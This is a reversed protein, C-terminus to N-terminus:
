SNINDSGESQEPHCQTYSPAAPLHKKLYLFMGVMVAGSVALVAYTPGEGLWEITTTNFEEKTMTAMQICAISNNLFHGIIGPVLSGTRYYLWGFILGIAFAFPIQIPNMHIIGFIASAIFLAAWPNMGKRLLHGQIAGRFLFEEVLPAMITISIIGFVNRSMAFFTDQMLDPLGLFESCLNLFLMGSIILPISLGIIKWSIETFSKLNFKVYKFHILHWIMAIGSLVMSLGIMNTSSGAEAYSSLDGGNQMLQNWISPLTVLSTFLMQYIFYYIVLKITQKM